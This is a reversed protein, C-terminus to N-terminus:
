SPSRSPGLPLSIKANAPDCLLPRFRVTHLARSATTWYDLTFALAVVVLVPEKFMMTWPKILYVRLDVPVEDRTCHIYWDGTEQRVRQARRQLIVSELSEPLFCMVVTLPLAVIVTLWVTWRWDLEFHLVLSAGVAPGKVTLATLFRTKEDWRIARCEGAFWRRLGGNCLGLLWNSSGSSRLSRRLCGSSDRLCCKRLRRSATQLHASCQRREPCTHLYQFGHFWDHRCDAAAESWLIRFCAWLFCSRCCTLVEGQFTKMSRRGIALGLIFMSVALQMSNADVDMEQGAETLVGSLVSIAFSVIFNMMGVVFGIFAKLLQHFNHPNESDNDGTWGVLGSQSPISYSIAVPGKESDESSPSLRTAHNGDRDKHNRNQCIVRIKREGYHEERIQALAQGRSYPGVTDSCPAEIESQSVPSESAGSLCDPNFNNSGALTTNSDVELRRCQKM